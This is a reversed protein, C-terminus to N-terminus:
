GNKEAAEIAQRRTSFIQKIEATNTWAGMATWLASLHLLSKAYQCGAQTFLTAFQKIKGNPTTKFDNWYKLTQDFDMNALADTVDHFLDVQKEDFAPEDQPQDAQKEVQLPSITMVSGDNQLYTVAGDEQLAREIAPTLPLSACLNKIPRRLAMAAYGKDWFGIPKESFAKTDKNYQSESMRRSKEAAQKNIVEFIENGDKLKARAYFHTTEGSNEDAPEHDIFANTGQKFSFKDEKYVERAELYSIHGSELAQAKWYKYGLQFCCVPVWDNGIKVKRPILYCEGFEPELRCNLTAAKYLAGMISNEECARIKDNTLLTVAAECIRNLLASDSIVKSLRSKQLAEFQKTPDKTIISIQNSM